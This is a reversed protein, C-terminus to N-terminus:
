ERVREVTGTSRRYGKPMVGADWKKAREEASPVVLPRVVRFGLFQADTLYWSSQPIEPDMEIWQEASGLRRASRLKTPEDRWSGGRVAQPYLKMAIVLPDNASKGVFEQYGEPTFQDLTWESVNGHMDYLGWPNAKKKGVQHYPKDWDEDGFWEYESLKEPDDGFWYATKTGARCAYEWEAETPLRYYHGTKESLWQCYTRAARQTMCIAPFGRKGMGFSMEMYVATPRTVADAMKDLETPQVNKKERAIVELDLAWCDFEDWTVECKGMWFPSIEVEHQPGECAERGSEKNPSGMVFKGGPIPVMDFSVETGSIKETYPKMETTAAPEVATAVV